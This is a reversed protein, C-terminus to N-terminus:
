SGALAMLGFDVVISSILYVAALAGSRKYGWEFVSNSFFFVVIVAVLTGVIQFIPPFGLASITLSLLFVIIAPVIVIGLMSSFDVLDKDKHIVKAAIFLIASVLLISIM